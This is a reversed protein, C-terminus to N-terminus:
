GPVRAHLSWVWRHTAFAPSRRAGYPDAVERDRWWLWDIPDGDDVPHGGGRLLM